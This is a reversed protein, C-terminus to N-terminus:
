LFDLDMEPVEVAEHCLELSIKIDKIELQRSQTALELIERFYGSFRRITDMEFLSKNYTFGVLIRNNYQLVNLILDFKSSVNTPRDLADDGEHAVFDRNVRSHEFMVDFLPNRGSQRAGSFLEVIDEFQLDQNEFADLTRQRVLALFDMFRKDGVPRNRLVLTNVFMGVIRELDPHPRGATPTGVCIDDQGSVRSLFIYFVALMVMYVTAGEESALRVIDRSQKESLLFLLRKGEFVPVDPRPFDLPLNLLPPKDGLVGRWYSEQRRMKEQFVDGMQWQAYDVYQLSLPPLSEGKLLAHFDQLLVEMSTGDSVIHHMDVILIRRGGSLTLVGARLLPPRSLDFPQVFDRVVAEIDSSRDDGGPGDIYEIQFDVEKYIRQVPVSDMTSFGTRLSHHRRILHAFVDELRDLDVDSGLPSIHFINYATGTPEMTQTIYLRKQAPSLPYYDRTEAPPVAVFTKNSAARVLEGQGSVTSRRFIESLPIECDFERHIRGVLVTARLSHGGLRFFDSSSDITSQEIGLIDSWIAALREEVADALHAPEGAAEMRPVPLAKRDIKGNATLPLTELQVFYAPIMYTPLHRQLATRTGEEDFAGGTAVYGCLYKEGNEYERALVAANQVGPLQLLRNEIEGLEIRFGRIKAQHDVRGLFEVNGDATFRALDGTKYMRGSIFPDKMFAGATTEPNNLYGRAVNAGAICLEGALGTPQMHGGSMVYVSTNAVPKGIVVVGSGCKAALADISTETPGYHNHLNYGLGVMRDKLKEDLRDGGCILVRISELRPCDSLLESLVLPVFQAITPGYARLKGLIEDRGYHALSDMVILAAGATLSTFIEEVSVDFAINTAQLVRDCASVEYRDNFWGVTNALAAHHVAVGKAQGTSGSTYIVYALAEPDHSGEVEAAPALTEALSEVPLVDVGNTGFSSPELTDASLVLKAGCDRLMYSIRDPPVQESIPLYAGGAKLIALIGTVMAMGRGGGIGIINDRGVGRQQLVAAMRSADEDLRRYTICGQRHVLAVADPSRQSQLHILQHATAQGIEPKATDNFEDLIRRREENDLLSVAGLPTDPAATLLDVIRKFYDVFRQITERKFLRVCYEFTFYFIGGSEGASLTLDFKAERSAAPADNTQSATDVNGEPDRLDMMSFMVDFLPNRSPDREVVVQEVLDEFQFDQNEFAEITLDKVQRLLQAFSRGEPSACRLVLTNVFMGILNQLEPQRRGAIPVGTVIDEQGSLKGLLVHFMALLVMFLTADYTLALQRIAESQMNDLQFRLVDGEFSQLPPRSYDEPLNLVPVTDSFQSLWYDRQRDLSGTAKQRNQWQSFDRYQVALPELAEGNLLATFDREMVGQSVGDCIIHHMDTMLAFRGEPLAALGVRFLPPRSLDFPRIFARMAAGVQERTEQPSSSATLDFSEIEVAVDEHIRQVPDGLSLFSTRLTEHRMVLQRAAEQFRSRQFGRSLISVKPRNYVTGEPEMQQLVFLRKQASSLEYYEKKETPGVAVYSEKQASRVCRALGAVTPHQFIDTLPVRVSFERQIDAALVTAKLSQGGMAFFNANTGIVAAELDLVAAWLNVMVAEIDDAPAQYDQEVEVTPQPLARRDVKGNANLPLQDLFVFFTPIMYSPLSASCHDILEKRLTGEDGGNGRPVVYAVIHKDRPSDGRVLVITDGVAPHAALRNEIEGLEIRYGRIKVQHDVRGLFEVMGDSTFRALDGTRYLRQGPIVANELFKEVTTEPRNLYGRALGEGAICLEGPLGAPRINQRSDLIYVRTNAIPKGITPRRRYDGIDAFDIFRAICGITAETPGYHNMFRIHPCAQHAAEVDQVVIAEGGLVVLRLSSCAAASFNAAHALVNFMSPTMKLYTIRHRAVYDLLIDPEMYQDRPLIHISGGSLLSPYLATYGLDFAFSSVLMSKDAETIGAFGTFWSVYNVLNRHELQVGKPKGTTGSTYIVYLLDKQSSTVGTTQGEEEYSSDDDLQLTRYGEEELEELLHGQGLLLDARSDAMMYSRRNQPFLPDVPMYAAGAKLAALIGIVLYHSPEAMVAVVSGRRVGLRILTSALGGSLEHLRRFTLAAGDGEGGVALKEPFRLATREFWEHITIRRNFDAGTNNFSNLVLRREGDDMMDIDDVPAGPNAFLEGLMALLRGKLREMSDDGYLCRNFHIRADVSGENSLFLFLINPRYFYFDVEEQINQVLVGVDFLKESPGGHTQAGLLERTLIEIPYRYNVMGAKVTGKVSNLLNKVTMERIGAIKLPVCLNSFQKGASDGQRFITTGLVVDGTDLYRSLLVGVTATLMVHLAHTSGNSMKSLLEYVPGPIAFSLEGSEYEDDGGTAEAPFGYSGEVGSLEKLWYEREATLQRAALELQESFRNHEM